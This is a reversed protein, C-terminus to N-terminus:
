TLLIIVPESVVCERVEDDLATRVQGLSDRKLYHSINGKSQESTLQVFYCNLKAFESISRIELKQRGARIRVDTLYAADPLKPEFVGNAASCSFSGNENRALWLEKRKALEVGAASM